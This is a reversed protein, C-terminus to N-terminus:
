SFLMYFETRLECYFVIGGNCLGVCERRERFYYNIRLIMHFVYTCEAPV